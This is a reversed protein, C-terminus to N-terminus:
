QHRLTLGEGNELVCFPQQLRECCESFEDPEETNFEFMRYHCPIVMKAGAARALAAAETGNLNGAVRREPKNGNIPLIAVDIPFRRLEDVLSSHWLTDGSHYIAFGGFTVVFGLYRSFGNGDREVENHAANIGHFAFPGAEVSEGADVPLFDPGEPGLRKMAFEVNAKPLVLQMHPNAATLSLLTEADLHDTHNHSSTVVEIGEIRHADIVRETMRVHPNDTGAYKRTLSDSLYPDFIMGHGNWRVLFGSQGLWWLHLAEPEKESRGIDALLTDDKQFPQIM